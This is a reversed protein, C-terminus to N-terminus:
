EKGLPKQNQVMELYSQRQVKQLRKVLPNGVFEAMDYYYYFYCFLRFRQQEVRQDEM